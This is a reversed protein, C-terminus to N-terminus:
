REKFANQEKIWITKKNSTERVAVLSENGSVGAVTEQLSFSKIEKCLESKITKRSRLSSIM